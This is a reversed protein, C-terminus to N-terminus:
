IALMESITSIHVQAIKQLKAALGHWFGLNSGWSETKDTEEMKFPYILRLVSAAYFSLDSNLNVLRSYLM